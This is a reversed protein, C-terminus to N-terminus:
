LALFRAKTRELTASVNQKRNNTIKLHLNSVSVRPFADCLSYSRKSKCGCLWLLRGGLHAGGARGPDFRLFTLTTPNLGLHRKLRAKHHLPRRATQWVTVTSASIFLCIATAGLSEDRSNQGWDAGSSFNILVRGWRPTGDWVARAFWRDPNVLRRVGGWQLRLQAGFPRKEIYVEINFAECLREDQLRATNVCLDDLNMRIERMQEVEKSMERTDLNTAPAQIWEEDASSVQVGDPFSSVWSQLAENGSSRTKAKSSNGAFGM